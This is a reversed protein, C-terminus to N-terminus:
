WGLKHKWVLFICANWQTDEASFFIDDDMM